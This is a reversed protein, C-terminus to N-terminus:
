FRRVLVAMGEPSGHRWGARVRLDLNRRLPLNHLRALRLADLGSAVHNFWLGMTAVRGVRLRDDAHSRFDAFTSRAAEGDWGATYRPDNAILDYFAQRDGGYLAVLASSDQRTARSWRSFSWRSASDSPLGAFHAAADQLKHGRDRMVAHTTWGLVEALMFWLGRRDGAYMEGSGPLAASLAAAMGESRWQPVDVVVYLSDDSPGWQREIARQALLLEPRSDGSVVALSLPYADV